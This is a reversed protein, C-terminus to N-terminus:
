WRRYPVPACRNIIRVERGYPGYRVIRVRCGNASVTRRPGGYYPRGHYPRPYVPPGYGPRGYGPRGHYGHAHHPPRPKGGHYDGQHGGNHGGHSSHGGHHGGGGGYSPRGGHDHVTTVAPAGAPAEIRLPAAEAANIPVAMVPVAGIISVVALARMRGRVARAVGSLARRKLAWAPQAQHRDEARRSGNRPIAGGGTPALHAPVRHAAHTPAPHTPAPHTASPDTETHDAM